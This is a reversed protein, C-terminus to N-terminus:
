RTPLTIMDSELGLLYERVAAVFSLAGFAVVAGREDASALAAEVADPPSAIVTTQIDRDRMVAALQHPDAARPSPWFTAFVREAMPAIADAMADVDKGELTGFVFVAQSLSAYERLAAVMRKASDGNHAGDIIFLPRRKLTELRAPWVVDALAARVHQPTLDGGQRRTLEECAVIATAANDLQHRGILPLRAAYLARATKLKFDQADLTHAVRTMQCVVAVEVVTAGRVTARRRIVDIASERQPAVVTTSGPTIIGAKQEAIEAITAGLVDTHELSIPTIVVVETHDFVNTSDLAGGLGVEVVQADVGAERFAVFAAATLADFAIFARGPFQPAVEEIAPRVHSIAAAFQEPAIPKGGIRIRENYRHLHPSLYCGATSGAAELIAEILVATTGKGKSGAIHVTPRNRHPDDLASLLARMPTLDPRDTFEGTREFDPLARLWRIAEYYDM